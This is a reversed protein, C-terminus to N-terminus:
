LEKAIKETAAREAAEKVYKAAAADEAEKQRKEYAKERMITDEANKRMMDELAALKQLQSKEEAEKKKREADRRLNEEHQARMMKEERELLMLEEIKRLRDETPSPVPPGPTPPAPAPAPPTAVKPEAVKEPSAERVFEPPIMRRYYAERMYPDYPWPDRYAGHSHYRMIADRPPPPPVSAMSYRHQPHPRRLPPARDYAAFDDIPGRPAFPNGPNEYYPDRYPMVDHPAFHDSIVSPEPPFGHHPVHGWQSPSPGPRHPMGPGPWPYDDPELSDSHFSDPRAPRGRPPPERPAHPPGGRAPRPHPPPEPVATRRRSHGRDQHGPRSQQSSQRSTAPRSASDSPDIDDVVEYSRRRVRVRRVHVFEDQHDDNSQDSFDVQSSASFSDM